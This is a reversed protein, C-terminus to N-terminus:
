PKIKEELRKRMAAKSAEDMKQFKKERRDGHLIYSLIDDLKDSQRKFEMCAKCYHLHVGYRMRQWFPLRDMKDKEVLYSARKCTFFMRDMLRKLMM